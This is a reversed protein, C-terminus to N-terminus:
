GTVRRWIHYALSSLALWEKWARRHLLFMMVEWRMAFSLIGRRCSFKKHCNKHSLYMKDHLHSLLYKDATWLKPCCLYSSFLVLSRLWDVGVREYCVIYPMQSCIQWMEHSSDDARANKRIHFSKNTVHFIALKGWRCWCIFITVYFYSTYLSLQEHSELTLPLICFTSNERNYSNEGFM